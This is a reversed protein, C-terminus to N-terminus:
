LDRAGLLQNTTKALDVSCMARVASHDPARWGPPKQFKGTEEDLIAQGKPFKSNNALNVAALHPIDPVGHVLMTGTAVYILDCCGDIVEDIDVEMDIDNPRLEVEDIDSIIRGIPRVKFGLAAVTELAEELILRARLERVALSRQGPLEAVRQRPDSRAAVGMCFLNSCATASLLGHTAMIMDGTPIREPGRDM